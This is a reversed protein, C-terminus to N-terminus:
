IEFFTSWSEELKRQRDDDYDDRYIHTDGDIEIVLKLEHCYFDVIYDIIPRNGDFNYGGLM